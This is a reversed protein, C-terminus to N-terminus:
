GRLPMQLHRIEGSTVLDRGRKAPPEVAERLDADTYPNAGFGVIAVDGRHIEFEEIRYTTWDPSWTGKTIRFAFSMEDILGARIKPAIYAVDVDSPDLDAEVTLGEVSEALVLSGNTTRALRRLQDHQLVLPVDLDERALSKAGAGASVVELYPGYWDWMEYPKEYASALGSFHLGEGGDGAARLSVEARTAVAFGSDTRQECRRQSPRDARTAITTARKAAAEMRRQQIEEPTM